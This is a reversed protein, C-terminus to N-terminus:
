SKDSNEETIEYPEIHVLIENVDDVEMGVKEKVAGTIRHSEKVTLEGSVQVHVDIFIKGQVRKARCQHLSRVGEVSLISRCIRDMIEASPAADLLDRADEYIILVAIRLIFVAVVIAIIHDLIELSPYIKAIGLGAFVAVSTFADTRHHWANAVLSSSNIRDGVARTWQYLMEKLIISVGAAIIPLWGPSMHHHESIGVFAEYGIYVSALLLLIGVVFTSLSEFKAHGYHHTGDSPMSSVKLGLLVVIDSALDSLSHIGDAIIAQSSGIIGAAIKFASLLINCLMGCLTVRRGKAYDATGSM